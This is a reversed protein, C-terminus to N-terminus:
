HNEKPSSFWELHGSDYTLERWSDFEFRILVAAGPPVERIQGTFYHVLQAIGPNHGVLGVFNQNEPFESIVSLLSQQSADYIRSDESPKHLSLHESLINATALTRLSPSSILIQPVAGASEIREAMITTDRMGSHKLPREFDSYSDDHVAKAHRILLIKKM